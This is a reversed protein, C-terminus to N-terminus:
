SPDTLVMEDVRKACNHRVACLSLIGDCDVHQKCYAGGLCVSQGAFSASCYHIVTVTNM